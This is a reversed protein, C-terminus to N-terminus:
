MSLTATKIWSQLLANNQAPNRQVGPPIYADYLNTAGRRCGYFVKDLLRSIELIMMPAKAVIDVHGV